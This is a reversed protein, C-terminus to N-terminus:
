AGHKVRGYSYATAGMHLFYNALTVYGYSRGLLFAYGIMAM